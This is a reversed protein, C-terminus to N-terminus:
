RWTKWPANGRQWLSELQRKDRLTDMCQWFSAHRYAFLEGSAALRPMVDREFSVADGDPIWDLVGPELAFFGGNIWGEGLQSKEGFREVRDGALELHGFRAPPRVATLTALRGHGRHFALLADLDVDALGDGYTLMFTGEGVFPALRRLRAGTESELGTDVLSVRWPLRARALPLVEGTKFDVTLDGDLAVCDAVYRKIVDGRFGLAILFDHHGYVSFHRIIHWLLPRGGIEVMPKPRLETEPAMRTGQGGALIAVRM